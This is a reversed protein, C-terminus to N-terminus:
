EDEGFKDWLVKRIMTRTPLHMKEAAQELRAILHVNLNLSYKKNQYRKSHDDLIKKIRITLETPLEEIYDLYEYCEKLADIVTGTKSM